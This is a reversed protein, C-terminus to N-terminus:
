QSLGALGLMIFFLANEVQNEPVDNGNLKVKGEDIELKLKINESDVVALGSNKAQLVLQEVQAKAAQEATSRQEPDVSAIQKALEELASINLTTDLISQKFINLVDATSGMNNFDTAKLNLLLALQNKGKSNTLSIDKIHLQPEKSLLTKSIEEVKANQEDTLESGAQMQLSYVILEDSSKADLKMSIDAKLQGLDLEESQNKVVVQSSFDGSLDYDENVLKADGKSTIKNLTLSPKNADASSISFSDASMTYDGITLYRYTDSTKKGKVEYRLGNYEMKTIPDLLSLMPVDIALQYDGSKALTFEGSTDSINWIADDLKFGSTSFQGSTDGSYSMTTQHTFVEPKTFYSKLQEPTIIKGESSVMAPVLNGKMLRNIPLPGHYLKDSGKLVYTEGGTEAELNYSIDSSFFHREVKVDKIEAKVGYLEFQKLTNNGLTVLESYKEEVQKGTYWSGGTAVAGIVVAVSIAITSLKM